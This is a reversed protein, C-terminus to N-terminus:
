WFGLLMTMTGLASVTSYALLRKLDTQRARPLSWFGDHGGRAGRDRDAM